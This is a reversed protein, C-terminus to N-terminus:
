PCKTVEVLAFFKVGDHTVEHQAYQSDFPVVAIEADPFLDTLADQNCLHVEPKGYMSSLGILRQGVYERNFQKAMRTLKALQKSNKDTMTM